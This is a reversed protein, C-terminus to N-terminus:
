RGTAGESTDVELISQAFRKYWLLAALTRRTVLMYGRLNATRVAQLLSSIDQQAVTQALDTLLQQHIPERSYVFELAQLLGATYILMPLKHAMAGYKKYDPRKKIEIVQIRILDSYQQDLTQM